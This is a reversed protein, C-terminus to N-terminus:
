ETEFEYKMLVQQIEIKAQANKKNPLRKLTAVLSKCFLFDPDESYNRTPDKNSLTHAILMDIKERRERSEELIKKEDFRRRKATSHSTTSISSLAPSPPQSLFSQNPSESQDMNDHVLQEEIQDATVVNLTINSETTRNAVNDRIFLMSEYHKCTPTKQYAAGSRTALDIKKVCKMMADRLNKWRKKM